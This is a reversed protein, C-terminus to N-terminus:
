DWRDGHAGPGHGHHHKWHGHKWGPGRHPGHAPPRLYIPRPQVYVPAPQLYIPHPAVYVPPPPLYVPPPRYIPRPRVHVPPPGYGPGAYITAGPVHIGISFQVDSRAQATAAALLAAIGLATAMVFQRTSRTSQM